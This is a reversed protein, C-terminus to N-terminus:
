TNFVRSNTIFNKLQSFPTNCIGQQPTGLPSITGYTVKWTYYIYPDEGYVTVGLLCLMFALVAGRGIKNNNKIKIFSISYYFLSFSIFSKNGIEEKNSSSLQKEISRM